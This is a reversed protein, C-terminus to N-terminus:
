RCSVCYICWQLPQVLDNIQLREQKNRVMEYSGVSDFEICAPHISISVSVSGHEKISPSYSFWRSLGECRNQHPRSTREHPSGISSSVGSVTM